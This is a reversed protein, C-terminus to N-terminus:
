PQAQAELNLDEFVQRVREAFQRWQETQHSDPLNVSVGRLRIANVASDDLTKRQDNINQQVREVGVLLTKQQEAPLTNWVDIRIIFVGIVPTWKINLMYAAVKDLGSFLAFLPTAPAIDTQGTQMASLLNSSNLIVPQFGLSQLATAQDSHQRWVFIKKNDLQEPTLLPETSFFRVWGAEAWFLVKFGQQRLRQQFPQKHKKIAADVAEWSNFLLPTKILKSMSDDYESFADVTVLAADLQASTLLTLMERESGKIGDTYIIFKGVAQSNNRWSKGLEVLQRHYFSGRNAMTGIKILRNEALAPAAHLLAITWLGAILFGLISQIEVWTQRIFRYNSIKSPLFM